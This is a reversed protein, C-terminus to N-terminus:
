QKAVPFNGEVKTKGNISFVVNPENRSTSSVNGETEKVEQITDDDNYTEPEEDIKNTLTDTATKNIYEFVQKLKNSIEVRIADDVETNVTKSDSYKNFILQLLEGIKNKTTEDERTAETTVNTEQQQKDFLRKLLNEINEKIKNNQVDLSNVDKINSDTETPPNDRIRDNRPDSNNKGINKEIIKQESDTGNSNGIIDERSNEGEQKISKFLKQLGDEITQKIEQQVKEERERQEEREQEERQKEERKRQEEREQEERKIQEEREEREEKEREARENVIKRQEEEQLDFVKGLLGAIVNEINSNNNNPDTDM